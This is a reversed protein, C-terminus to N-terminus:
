NVAMKEQSMDSEEDVQMETGIRWGCGLVWRSHSRYNVYDVVSDRIGGFRPNEVWNRNQKVRWIKMVM